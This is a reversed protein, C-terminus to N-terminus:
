PSYGALSRQAHSKGPLFVPTRQWKGRWLIKGVWPYGADGSERHTVLLTNFKKQVTEFEESSLSRKRELTFSLVLFLSQKISFISFAAEMTPM